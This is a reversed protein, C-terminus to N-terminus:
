SFKRMCELAIETAELRNLVIVKDDENDTVLLQRLTKVSKELEEIAENIKMVGGIRWVNFM